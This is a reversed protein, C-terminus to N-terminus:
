ILEVSCDCARTARPEHCYGGRGNGLEQSPFRATLCYTSGTLDLRGVHWTWKWRWAIGDCQCSMICVLCCDILSEFCFLFFFLKWKKELELSSASTRPPRPGPCSREQAGGNGLSGNRELEHVRALPKRQSELM